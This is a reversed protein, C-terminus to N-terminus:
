SSKSGLISNDESTLPATGKTLQQKDSLTQHETKNKLPTSSSKTCLTSGTFRNTTQDNSLKNDFHTEPNESKEAMELLKPSEDIYSKSQKVNLMRRQSFDLPAMLSIQPMSQPEKNIQNASKTADFSDM